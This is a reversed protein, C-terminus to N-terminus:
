VLRTPDDVVEDRVPVVVIVHQEDGVGGVGGLDDATQLGRRGLPDLDDAVVLVVGDEGHLAGAGVLDECLDTQGDTV